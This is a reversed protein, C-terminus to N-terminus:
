PACPDPSRDQSRESRRMAMGDILEYFECAAIPESARLKVGGDKGILLVAFDDADVAFRARLAAADPLGDVPPRASVRDGVVEIRLLDRDQAAGESGSLLSLQAHLAPNDPEAAFLLAIRQDWRWADLPGAQLGSAGLIASLALALLVRWPAPWPPAHPM